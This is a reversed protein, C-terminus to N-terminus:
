ICSFMGLLFLQFYQMRGIANHSQGSAINIIHLLINLFHTIWTSHICTKNLVKRILERLTLWSWLIQVELCLFSVAKVTVHVLSSFLIVCQCQCQLFHALHWRIDRWSSYRVAFNNLVFLVALECKIFLNLKERHNKVYMCVFYLM